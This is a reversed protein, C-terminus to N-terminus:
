TITVQPDAFWAQGQDNAGYIISWVQMTPIIGSPTHASGDSDSYVTSPVITDITREVWTGTGWPVYQAALQANTYSTTYAGSYQVGCIRGDNGYYDFGIRAGSQANKDGYSSGTTKIWVTFVIHQGPKASLWLGDCERATNTGIPSPDLRISEQGNYETTTDLHVNGTFSSPAIEYTGWGSPIPDLNQSQVPTPTPTPRPTPTPTPTSTPAPTPMPTPTPTATPTPTPTPTPAPTPMPTPTPTSTPTPAPTPTSAPTPTPTPTPVQTPTPTPTATPTPTETTAPIVTPNPSSTAVSPLTPSPNPSPALTATPVPTPLQTPTTAPSTSKSPTPTPSSLAAPAPSSTIRLTSAPMQALLAPSNMTPTSTPTGAAYISMAGASDTGWIGGFLNAFGNTFSRAINNNKQGTEQAEIMNITVNGMIALGYTSGSNIHYPTPLKFDVWSFTTGISLATSQEQLTSINGNVSYLAAIAKGSSTGDIYALIDTISGTTTCKFYSISQANADNHALNTGVTTNGLLPVQSAGVGNPAFCSLIGVIFM